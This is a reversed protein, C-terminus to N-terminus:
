EAAEEREHFWHMGAHPPMAQTGSTGYSLGDTKRWHPLLRDYHERVTM